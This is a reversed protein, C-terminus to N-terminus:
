RSRRTSQSKIDCLDFNM